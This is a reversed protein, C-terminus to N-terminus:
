RVLKLPARGRPVGRDGVSPLGGDGRGAVHDGRGRDAACRAQRSRDLPVDLRRAGDAGPEHPHGGGVNVRPADPSPGPPLPGRDRVRVAEGETVGDRIHSSCRLQDAVTTEWRPAWGDPRHGRGAFLRTRPPLSLIRRLARADGRPAGAWATGGGPVFLANHVFAADGIAYTTSAAVRGSSCFVEVELGGVRFREGDEFLRDWWSGPAPFGLPRHTEERVERVIVVHEGTAMPAGFVGKLYAAASPRGAHPRTALVWEVTLGRDWVFAVIRDASRTHTGGRTRDFDLMPDIIACCGTAPDAAVYAVGDTAEDHFGTVVPGRDAM